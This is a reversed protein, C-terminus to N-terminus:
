GNVKVRKHIWKNWAESLLDKAIDANEFFNRHEEFKFDYPHKELLINNLAVNADRLLANIGNKLIFKVLGKTIDKKFAEAGDSEFEVEREDELGDLVMDEFPKNEIGKIKKM